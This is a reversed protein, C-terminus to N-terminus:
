AIDWELYLEKFSRNMLAPIYTLKQNPRLRLNPLKSSLIELAIRGEQRALNSGICHHLGHGFALHNATLQQFREIEFSDAQNYQKEDRNASGYMLFLRSGSPLTVGAISVEETTTRIMAPVPADYRLAEEIAAPILSPKESIAQWLQPQELLLKITSAILHSTTKHGALILGCLVIVMENMSLDSDLIGSILDNQPNQRRKTILDAVAHQMSVFSTACELQAEPTLQSSLLATMDICWKKINHMMELPVGYMTLIVELPLPYTFQTVIDVQGDNIFNNVLRNAIVRISDELVQLKEPAFVKMFPARLRKHLDGDSNVLDAVFPFGKRLVQFVEPTFNVIPQLNDASSFKVPNKLVNLIDEYRTLVYGNLIPSYFLPAENRAQQFFSYPDDLQPQVFPQFEEKLHPCTTQASPTFDKSTM